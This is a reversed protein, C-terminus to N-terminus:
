WGKWASIIRYYIFEVYGFRTADHMMALIDEIGAIGDKPSAGPEAPRLNQENWIGIGGGSRSFKRWIGGYRM